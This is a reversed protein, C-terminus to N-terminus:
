MWAVLMAIGVSQVPGPAFDGPAFFSRMQYSFRLFHLAPAAQPV